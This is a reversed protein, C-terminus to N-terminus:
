LTGRVSGPPGAPPTLSGARQECLLRMGLSRWIASWADGGCGLCRAQPARPSDSEAVMREFMMM